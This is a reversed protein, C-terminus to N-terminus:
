YIIFPFQNMLSKASYNLIVTLTGFKYFVVSRILRLLPFHRTLKYQNKSVSYCLRM